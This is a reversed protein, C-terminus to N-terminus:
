LSFHVTSLNKQQQLHKTYFYCYILKQIFERKQQWTFKNSYIFQQIYEFTYILFEKTSELSM